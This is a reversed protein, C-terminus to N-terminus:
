GIKYADTVICNMTNLYTDHVIRNKVVFVHGNSDNRGGDNFQYGM